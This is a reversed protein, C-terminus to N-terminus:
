LPAQVKILDRDLFRVLAIVDSACKYFCSYPQPSSLAIPGMASMTSTIILHHKHLLFHFALLSFGFSHFVPM